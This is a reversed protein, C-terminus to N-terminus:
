RKVKSLALKTSEKVYEDSYLSLVNGVEGNINLILNVRDAQKLDSAQKGSVRIKVDIEKM